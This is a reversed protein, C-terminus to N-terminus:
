ITNFGDGASAFGDAIRLCEIAGQLELPNIGAGHTILGGAVDVKRASGGPKVSLAIALLKVVVGKVLSDGAGAIAGPKYVKNKFWWGTYIDEKGKALAAPLDPLMQFIFNWKRKYDSLQVDETLTVGPIGADILTLSKFDGPFLLAWSYAVSAGFDHAVVHLPV